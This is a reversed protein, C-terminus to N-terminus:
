KVDKDPTPPASSLRSSEEFGDDSIEFDQLTIQHYKPDEEGNEQDLTATPTKNRVIVVACSIIIIIGLCSLIGPFHNWIVVDWILAFIMNSYSMISAKGAHVRQIGATLCFQMIFGSLGILVFLFWQYGTKPLVFSYSPVVIITICSILCCMMAFYSVSLLPHAADGIKRIIIYVGSAGFVGIIGVGTALLRLQTLSSEVSDDTSDQDIREGFIFSPKAILLVGFFSIIACIGQVFSYREHLIIWAMIGTIMPVLFTIAVADSLSLYQLSFYLGSVGFFGLFGRAFLLRRMNKPGFPSDEVSQTIYM